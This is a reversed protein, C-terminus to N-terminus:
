EKRAREIAALGRQKVIWDPLVKVILYSSMTGGAILFATIIVLLDQPLAGVLWLAAIVVLDGSLSM